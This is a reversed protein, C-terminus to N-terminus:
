ARLFSEEGVAKGAHTLAPLGAFRPLMILQSNQWTEQQLSAHSTGVCRGTERGRLRTKRCGHGCGYSGEVGVEAM